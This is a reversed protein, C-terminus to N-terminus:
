LKSDDIRLGLISIAKLMYFSLLIFDAFFEIISRRIVELSRQARIVELNIKKETAILM